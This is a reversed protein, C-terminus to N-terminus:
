TTSGDANAKVQARSGSAKARLKRKPAAKKKSSEKKVEKGNDKEKKYEDLIEQWLIIRKPANYVLPRFGIFKDKSRLAMITVGPISTLKLFLGTFFSILVAGPAEGKDFIPYSLIVVTHPSGEVCATMRFTPEPDMVVDAAIVKVLVESYSPEEKKNMVSTM